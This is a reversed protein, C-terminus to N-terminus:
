TSRPDLLDRLTAIHKDALRITTQANAAAPQPDLEV